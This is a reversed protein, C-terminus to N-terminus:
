RHTGRAARPTPPSRAGEGAKLAPAPLAPFAAALDRPPARPARCARSGPSKPDSRRGLGGLHLIQPPFRRCHCTGAKPTLSFTARSLGSQGRFVLSRARLAFAPSRAPPATIGQADWRLGSWNSGGREIYIWATRAPTGHDLSGCAGILEGACVRACVHVSRGVPCRGLQGALGSRSKAGERRAPGGSERGPRSRM